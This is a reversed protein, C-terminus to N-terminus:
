ACLDPYETTMDCREPSVSSVVMASRATAMLQPWILVPESDRESRVAFYLWSMLISSSSPESARYAPREVRRMPQATPVPSGNHWLPLVARPTRPPLCRPLLARRRRRDVVRWRDARPVRALGTVAALNVDTPM